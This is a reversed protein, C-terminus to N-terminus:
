DWNRTELVDNPQRAHEQERERTATAAASEANDGANYRCKLTKTDATPWGCQAHDSNARATLLAAM